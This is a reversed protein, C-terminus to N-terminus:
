RSDRREAANRRVDSCLTQFQRLIAQTVPSNAESDAAASRATVLAGAHPLNTHAGKQPGQGQARGHHHTESPSSGAIREREIREWAEALLRRDSELKILSASWEKEQRAAQDDLRRESEALEALKLELTRDLDASAGAAQASASQALALTELSDLREVVRERLSQLSQILASHASYALAPGNRSEPGWPKTGPTHPEDVMCSNGLSHRLDRETGPSTRPNQNAWRGPECRSTIAIATM